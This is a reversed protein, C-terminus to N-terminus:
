AAEAIAWRAVCLGISFLDAKEIIRGREFLGKCCIRHHM